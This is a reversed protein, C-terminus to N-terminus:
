AQIKPCIDAIIHNVFSPTKLQEFNNALVVNEQWRKSAMRRIFRLPAYKTVPVWVLRAVKRVAKAARWTRKKSLPKGDTIVAVVTEADQRGLQTEALAGQLALSTMTSGKPWGLNKVKRLAGDLNGSMHQVWIQKCVKEQNVPSSFCKRVDGWSSPGSYLLVAIQAKKKDLSGIILEAAKKTAEWGKKKLSGSGDLVLILDLKAECSITKKDAAKPCARSNCRKFMTRDGSDPAPCEGQGSAPTKIRRVRKRTGSDCAKSCKSWKGWDALECDAECSQVNCAKTESAEGCPNGNHKMPREVDRLREQVGGGCDASCSSWGSWPSLRCDVPCPQENCRRMETLPLCGAGGQPQTDISRTMVQVGGACDKSCEGPVWDSLKCDQFFPKGGVGKMKTYVDSRIKKLGCMETEFQQYNTSCEAKMKELEKSLEEFETNALRGSEAAENECSTGEALKTQYSKLIHEAKEVSKSLTEETEECSKETEVIEDKVNDHDEKLGSQILIFRDQMTTCTAAGSITCKAARKDEPTPAGKSPDSCPSAPVLTKRLNQKNKDPSSDEDALDSFSQQLLQQAVNSKLADIHHRLPSHDFSLLSTNDCKRKCHLVGVAQGIHQETQILSAGCDTMDLIKSMVEVDGKISQLKTRMTKVDAKCKSRHEELAQKGPPINAEGNGIQGEAGLISTRCQAVKSNSDAITGRAQEVLGCQTSYYDRCKLIELDYKKMTEELLRNLMYKAGDVASYGKPPAIPAHARLRTRSVAMQALSVLEPSAKKNLRLIELASQSTMNQMIASMSRAHEHESREFHPRLKHLDAAVSAANAENFAFACFALVAQATARMGM